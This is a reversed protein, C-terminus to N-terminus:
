LVTKYIAKIKFLTISTAWTPVNYLEHNYLIIYYTLQVKIAINMKIHCYSIIIIIYIPICSFTAKKNYKAELVTVSHQIPLKLKFM